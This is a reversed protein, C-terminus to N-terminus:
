FAPKTKQSLGKIQLNVALLQKELVTRSADLNSIEKAYKVVLPENNRTKNKQRNSRARNLEANLADIKALIAGAEQQLSALTQTNESAVQVAEQAIELPIEKLPSLETPQDFYLVKDQNDGTEDNQREAVRKTLIPVKPTNTGSKDRKQGIETGFNDGFDTNKPAKRQATPPPNAPVRGSQIPM